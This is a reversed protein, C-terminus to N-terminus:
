QRAGINLEKAAVPVMNSVPITYGTILSLTACTSWVKAERWRVACRDEIRSGRLNGREPNNEARDCSKETAAIM